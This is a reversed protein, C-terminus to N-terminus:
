TLGEKYGKIIYEYNEIDRERAHILMARIEDETKLQFLRLYKEPVPRKGNRLTALESRLGTLIRQNVTLKQDYTM